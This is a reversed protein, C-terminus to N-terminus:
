AHDQWRRIADKLKATGDIAVVFAWAVFSFAIGSCAAIAVLQATTM